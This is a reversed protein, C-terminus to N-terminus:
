LWDEDDQSEMAHLEAIKALAAPIGKCEALVQQIDLGTIERREELYERVHEEALHSLDTLARLPELKLELPPVARGAIIVICNALLAEGLQFFLHQQLWREAEGTADEFSDFLLAVPGPQIAGLCGFFSENIQLEATRRVFDDNSNIVFTNHKIIDGGALDGGVGVSADSVDSITVGGQSGGGSLTVNVTTFRDVTAQLPAFHEAGLQKQAVWLLSLYDHARRFRFDIHVVPIAHEECHRRMKEILWSKGMGPGDEILMVRKPTGRALMKQFGLYQKERNVFWRAFDSM